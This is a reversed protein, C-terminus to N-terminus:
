TGSNKTRWGEGFSGALRLPLLLLYLAVGSWARYKRFLRLAGYSKKVLKRLPSGSLSATVKHWVRSSPVYDISMGLSRVRLSLDVDEAYMGFTEDFGGVAEFDRCRMAFCCGTAYGTVGPRDFEPANKKRLGVHRILGTSLTVVGGAYWITDPRDQYFIKPVAIGASPKRQLTELLPACFDSEVITDNNLFIVFEAYLELVRRFGANNGGAYGINCPLLLLEVDPFAAQIKKPSGDTSGNDVVLVMCAPSMVGALSELCALTVEAGNWNLVVICSQPSNTM